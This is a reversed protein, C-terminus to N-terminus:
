ARSMLCCFHGDCGQPEPISQFVCPEGGDTQISFCSGEPSALFAEIVQDNEEPLVSCTAYLLRGGRGVRVSAAALMRLQLEPLSVEGEALSPPLTWAIEPHRRMTGTGSCPADVFVLDFPGALCEPVDADALDCADFTVCGVWESLGAAEMRASSVRTKFAESDVGVLSVPGGQALAGNQLLVTKTGRGQGVELVHEGPVPRALRAVHQAAYDSVVVDVHEVLGSSALGAPSSLRLCSPEDTEVPVLGRGELLERAEADTHKARNAAVYVPAPELQALALDSAAREGRADRVRGVLWRPLGSVLSLTEDDCAGQGLRDRAAAVRPAEREAVKRLVANALGAARPSASRVLEVGQSVAASRPTQLYCIEFSALLLADRVRPELSSPRKVYTELAQELVGQASVTGFVLRSALACDRADLQEMEKATRLLERVHADRRRSRSLVALAARRAASLKAM